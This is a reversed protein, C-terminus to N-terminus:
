DYPEKSSGDVFSSQVALSQWAEILDLISSWKALTFTLSKLFGMLFYNITGGSLKFFSCSLTQM